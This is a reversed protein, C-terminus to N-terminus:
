NILFLNNSLMPRYAFNYFYYATSSKIIPVYRKFIDLIILNNDSLNEILFYKFPTKQQIIFLSYYFFYLFLEPNTGEEYFSCICDISNCLPTQSVKDESNLLEGELYSTFPNRFIYCAIPDDKELLISIILLGKRILTTVNSISPYITCSFKKQIKKIIHYFININQSNILFWQSQPPLKTKYKWYKVDFGYTYYTTLPVIPLIHSERKFLFITNKSNNRIRAQHTYIIKPAIGQKRYKKHVCLYDVYNLTIQTNDLFCILPRSTITAILKPYLINHKNTIDILPYKKYFLSCFVPSNHNELYKFISDHSPNYIVKNERCYHSHTLQYIDEKENTSLQTYKKTIIQRDFFKGLKPAKHEIIGPPFLWYRINHFRFIPQNSWFPYKFKFYCIFILYIFFAFVIYM